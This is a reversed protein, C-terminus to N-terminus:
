PKETQNPLFLKQARALIKQMEADMIMGWFIDAAPHRRGPNWHFQM